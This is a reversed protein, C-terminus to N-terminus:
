GHHTATVSQGDKGHIFRDGAIQEFAKAFEMSLAPLRGISRSGMVVIMGRAQIPKLRAGQLHTPKVASISIMRVPRPTVAPSRCWLLWQHSAVSPSTLNSKWCMRYIGAAVPANVQM